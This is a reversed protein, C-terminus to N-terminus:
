LILTGLRDGIKKLLILHDIKSGLLKKTTQSDRYTLWASCFAEISLNDCRLISECGPNPFGLDDWIVISVKELKEVGDSRTASESSRIKLSTATAAGLGFRFISRCLGPKTLDVHFDAHFDHFLPVQGSLTQSM